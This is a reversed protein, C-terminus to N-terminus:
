KDQKQNKLSTLYLISIVDKENAKVMSVIEMLLFKLFFNSMEGCLQETKQYKDLGKKADFSKTNLSNIYYNINEIISEFAKKVCKQKLEAEDVSKVADFLLDSIKEFRQAIRMFLPLADIVIDEDYTKGSSLEFVWRNFMHYIKDTDIELSKLTEKSNDTTITEMIRKLIFLFRLLIQYTNVKKLSIFFRVDIKRSDEYIIEAGSLTKIFKDIRSRMESSIDKSSFLTAENVGIYYLTYLVQLIIDSKEDLNVRVTDQVSEESNSIIICNNREFVNVVSQERINNRQIWKKPLSVTYTSGGVLQIKRKNM